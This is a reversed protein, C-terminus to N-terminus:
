AVFRVRAGPRLLAPPQRSVDFLTVDTHGVLLWGGPSPSPYVGTYGGALAVSGAPVRPRPSDLRPVHLHEPLGTLYGFGPAFGMFAVRFEIGAHIAPVEDVSVGWRSAVLALDPGDYHVPIPVLETTDAAVPAPAPLAALRQALAAPDAVGDILLTRAGPVLEAGAVLPSGALQRAWAQAEDGGACDLLLASWGVVTIRV